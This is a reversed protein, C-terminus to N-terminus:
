DVYERDLQSGVFFVIDRIVGRQNLNRSISVSREMVPVEGHGYVMTVM